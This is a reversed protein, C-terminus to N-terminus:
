IQWLKGKWICPHFSKALTKGRWFKASYPIDHSLLPPSLTIDHSLPPSSTIDHSVPPSMTRTAHASAPHLMFTTGYSVPLSPTMDYFSAPTVTDHHTMVDHSSTPPLPPTSDYFSQNTDSQVIETIVDDSFSTSSNDITQQLSTLRQDENLWERLHASNSINSFRQYSVPAVFLLDNLHRVRGWCINIWLM